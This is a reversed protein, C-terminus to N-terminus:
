TRPINQQTKRKRKERHTHIPSYLGVLPSSLFLPTRKALPRCGFFINRVGERPRLPIRVFHYVPPLPSERSIIESFYHICFLHSVTSRKMIIWGKELYITHVPVSLIQLRLRSVNVAMRDHSCEIPYSNTQRKQSREWEAFVVAAANGRDCIVWQLPCQPGQHSWLDDIIPVM